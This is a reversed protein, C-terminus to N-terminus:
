KRWSCHMFIWRCCFIHNKKLTATWRPYKNEAACQTLFHILIRLGDWVSMFSIGLFLGLSGGFEAVLSTWPYLFVKWILDQLYMWNTPSIQTTYHLYVTVKEWYIAQADAMNSYFVEFNIFILKVETQISTDSSAVWLSVFCVEDGYTSYKTLPLM